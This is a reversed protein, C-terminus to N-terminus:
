KGQEYMDYVHEAIALSATLAPSEMGVLQFCNPHKKDRRIIFDYTNKEEAIIGVHGPKLMPKIETKFSKREEEGGGNVFFQEMKGLFKEILEEESISYRYNDKENVPSVIPGVRVISGDSTPTLHAGFDKYTRGEHEFQWPMPYINRSVSFKGKNVYEVYEGKVPVIEYNNEPNVMRAIKDSYLGASNILTKTMFRCTDDGFQVEVVFHDKEPIINKVEHQRLLHAGHDKGLRALTDIYGATDMTATTPAYAASYVRLNKEFGCIEGPELKRLGPVSSSYRHLLEDLTNDEEESQTVILKGTDQMSIGYTQCFDRLMRNGKKCLVRKLGEQYFGCHLVESSRSSQEAGLYKNKELLFVQDEGLKSAFERAIALGVVGGGIITVPVEEM